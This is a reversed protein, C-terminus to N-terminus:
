THRIAKKACEPCKGWISIQTQGAEFDHPLMATCNNYFDGVSDSVIDFIKMCVTCKFHIHPTLKADYRVQEDEINLSNLIHETSFLHLTNYVTTRSLSPYSGILAQYVTEATPHVENETVYKLVAVRLSSPRINKSRLIEAYESNDSM